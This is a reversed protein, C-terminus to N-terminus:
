ATVTLRSHHNRMDAAEVITQRCRGVQGDVLQAVSGGGGGAGRSADFSIIIPRLYSIFLPPSM